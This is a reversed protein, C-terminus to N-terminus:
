PDGPDQQDAPVKQVMQVLRYGPDSPFCRCARDTPARRATRSGRVGLGLRSVRSLRPWPAPPDLRDVPLDRPRLAAPTGLHDQVPRAEPYGPYYRGEQDPLDGPDRRFHPRWQGM